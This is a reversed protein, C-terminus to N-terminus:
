LLFDENQKPINEFLIDEKKARFDNFYEQTTQSQAAFFDYLDEENYFYPIKNNNNEM